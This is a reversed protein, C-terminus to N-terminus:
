GLLAKELNAEDQQREIVKPADAPLYIVFGGKAPRQAIAKEDVMGKLTAV